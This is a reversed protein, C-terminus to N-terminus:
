SDEGEGPHEPRATKTRHEEPVLDAYGPHRAIWTRIYPCTPLVALHRARADDLSAQALRGALGAGQFRSDVETHVLDIVGGRLRYDVFGALEKGVRIEYRSMSTNDTVVPASAGNPEM